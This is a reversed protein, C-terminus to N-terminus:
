RPTFFGLLLGSAEKARLQTFACSAAESTSPCSGQDDREMDRSACCGTSGAAGSEGGNEQPRDEMEGAITQRVPVDARAPELDRATEEAQGEEGASATRQIGCSQSSYRAGGGIELVYERKEARVPALEKM